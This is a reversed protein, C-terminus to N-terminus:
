FQYIYALAATATSTYSGFSFLIQEENKMAKRSNKFISISVVLYVLVWFTKKGNQAFHKLYEKHFISIKCLYCNYTATEAQKQRKFDMKLMREQKLRGPIFCM